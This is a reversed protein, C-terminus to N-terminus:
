NTISKPNIVLNSFIEPYRQFIITKLMENLNETNFSLIRSKDSARENLRTGVVNSITDNDYPINFYNLLKKIEAVDNLQNTNIKYVNLSAHREKFKSIRAEIEYAYWLCKLFDTEDNQQCCLLDDIKILNDNELPDLTYLKAIDTKGPIDNLKFLSIAIQLPDRHLHIVKCKNGFYALSHEAFSKIFMHNTEIYYKNGSAAKKIYVRKLTYFQKRFFAEKEKENRYENLMKPHPEHLSVCGEITSFIRQLSLSGSRGANAVFIYARVDRCKYNLYCNFLYQSVLNHKFKNM